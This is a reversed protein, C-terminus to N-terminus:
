IADDKGLSMIAPLNFEEDGTVIDRGYLGASKLLGDPYKYLYEQLTIKTWVNITM